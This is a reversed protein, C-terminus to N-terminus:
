EGNTIWPNLQYTSHGLVDSLSELDKLVIPFPMSDVHENDNKDRYIRYLIPLPDGEKLFSEPPENIIISHTLDNTDSDDPPNFRYQVEFKPSQHVIFHHTDVHEEYREEDVTNYQISVITAITKRGNTLLSRLKNIKLSDTPTQSFGKYQLSKWSTLSIRLIFVFLFPLGICVCAFIIYYLIKHNMFFPM